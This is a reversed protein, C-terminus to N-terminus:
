RRARPPGPSVYVHVVGDELELASVLAGYEYPLDDVTWGPAFSQADYHSADVVDRWRRASHRRSFAALAAAHLDAASLHANGGGHLYLNGSLVGDKPPADSALTTVFRFDPGLNQLAASGVLLKFTSGPTFADDANRSYLMTGRVTDIALLGVYAGRLAPAELAADVSERVRAIQADTWPAGGPHPESAAGLTVLLAIACLHRSLGIM